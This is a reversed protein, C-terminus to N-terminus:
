DYLGMEQSEQALKKLVERRLQVKEKDYELLNSLPVLRSGGVGRFPIEGSELLKEMYADSVCLVEAAQRPTLESSVPFMDIVLTDPTLVPYSLATLSM